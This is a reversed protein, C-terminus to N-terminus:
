FLAEKKADYSAIRALLPSYLFFRLEISNRKFSNRITFHSTIGSRKGSICLGYCGFTRFVLSVDQFEKLM